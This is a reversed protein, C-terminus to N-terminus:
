RDSGRIDLPGTPDDDERAATALPADGPATVVLVTVNDSGGRDLAAQVLADAGTQPDSSGALIDQMDNVPVEGSLGDSCLVLVEGRNLSGHVEEVDVAALDAAGLAQTIVNRYPHVAADASSIQGQDLMRQVLSHDRTLQRLRAGDWLYARSDGVWAIRYEAGRLQLAVSTSGMGRQGLGDAAARAVVTHARSVAEQLTHGRVLEEHIFDAAIRSAVEGGQHGGMGDAVIWIGREPDAVYADENHERVCGVHTAEGHAPGM